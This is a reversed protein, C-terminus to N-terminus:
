RLRNKTSIHLYMSPFPGKSSIDFNGSNDALDATLAEDEMLIASWTVHRANPLVQQLRVRRHEDFVIM